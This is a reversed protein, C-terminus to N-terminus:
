FLQRKPFANMIMIYQGIHCTGRTTEAACQMRKWRSYGAQDAVRQVELLELIRAKLFVLHQHLRLDNSFLGLEHSQTSFRLIAEM